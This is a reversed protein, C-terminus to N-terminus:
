DQATQRPLLQEQIKPWNPNCTMTIFLDLKSYKRVLEMADHYRHHVDRHSDIYTTPLITRARINGIPAPHTDYKRWGRSHHYHYVHFLPFCPFCTSVQTTEGANLNDHLGQYLESQVTPQHDRIYRLQQTSIKAYQDVM